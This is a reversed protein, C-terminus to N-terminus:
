SQRAVWAANLAILAIGSLEMLWNIRIFLFDTSLLADLNHFGAARILVFCILFVFGLLALGIRSLHRRLLWLSVLAVWIGSFMVVLIFGIQLSRRDEYWGQMQSLCRAAATLGSQLDLQKNIMLAFLLVTLALWFLRMGQSVTTRAARFCLITTIGYAAVTVWGMPTPDGIVPSWRDSICRFLEQM